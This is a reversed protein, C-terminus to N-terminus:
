PASENDWWVKFAHAIRDIDKPTADPDVILSHALVTANHLRKVTVRYREPNDDVRVIADNLGRDSLASKIEDPSM